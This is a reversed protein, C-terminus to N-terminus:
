LLLVAVIVVCRAISFPCPSPSFDEFPKLLKRGQYTVKGVRLKNDSASSNRHFGDKNQLPRLADDNLDRVLSEFPSPSTMIRELEEHTGKVLRVM